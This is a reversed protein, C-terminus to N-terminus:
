KILLEYDVFSYAPCTETAEHRKKEVVKWTTFDVDPFRTDGVYSAEVNTLYMKNAISIFYEYIEGGGCVFNEKDADAAAIAQDFSHVVECGEHSFNKDRTIVINRRKPLPKFPLSDFTKRGMIITKGTTLRKFRKLDESIHWLLKNDNGIVNDNALACIISFNKKMKYQFKEKLIHIHNTILLNLIM